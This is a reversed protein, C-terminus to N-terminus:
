NPSIYRETVSNFVFIAKVNVFDDVLEILLDESIQTRIFLEVSIFTDVSSLLAQLETMICENIVVIQLYKINAEVM